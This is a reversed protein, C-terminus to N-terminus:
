SDTRSKMPTSMRSLSTHVSMSALVSQGNNMGPAGFLRPNAGSVLKHKTFRDRYLFLLETYGQHCVLFYPGM